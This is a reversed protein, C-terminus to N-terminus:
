LSEKNLKKKKIIKMSQNTNIHHMSEMKKIKM